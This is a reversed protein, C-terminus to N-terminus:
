TQFGSMGVVMVGRAFKFIRRVGGERSFCNSDRLFVNGILWLYTQELTRNRRIGIHVSNLTLETFVMWGPFTFSAHFYWWTLYIWSQEFWSRWSTPHPWLPLQIKGYSYIAYIEIFFRRLFWNVLFASCNTYVLLQEFWSGRSPHPWLPRDFKWM